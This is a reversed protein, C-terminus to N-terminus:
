WLSHAVKYPGKYLNSADSRVEDIRIYVNQYHQLDHLIFIKKLTRSALTVQGWTNEFTRDIFLETICLDKLSDKLNTVFREVM